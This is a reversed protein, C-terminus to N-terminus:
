RQWAQSNALQVSHMFTPKFHGGYTSYKTSNNLLFSFGQPSYMGSIYFQQFNESFADFGYVLFIM